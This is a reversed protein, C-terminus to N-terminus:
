PKSLIKRIEKIKRDLLSADSPSILNTRVFSEFNPSSCGGTNLCLSKMIDSNTGCNLGMQCAAISWAYGSTPGTAVESYRGLSTNDSNGALLQGLEFTALPDGSKSVKEVFQRLDEGQLRATSAMQLRAQAALDGGKAAQELWLNRADVPIAAGNDVVACEEAYSRAVLLIGQANAHSTSRAAIASYTALFKQPDINVAICRGYAEALDRQADAEGRNARAKLDLFTQLADNSASRHEQTGNGRKSAQAAPSAGSSREEEDPENSHLYAADNQPPHKHRVETWALGLSVAAVIGCILM